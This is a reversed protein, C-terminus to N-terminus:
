HLPHTPPPLLSNASRAYGSRELSSSGQGSATNRPEPEHRIRLAQAAEKGLLKGCRHGPNPLFSIVLVQRKNQLLLKCNLLFGYASSGSHCYLTYNPFSHPFFCSATHLSNPSLLGLFHFAKPNSNPLSPSLYILGPVNVLLRFLPSACNPVCFVKWTDDDKETHEPGRIPTHGKSTHQM